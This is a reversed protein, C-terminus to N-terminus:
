STEAARVFELYVHQDASAAIKFSIGSARRILLIADAVFAHALADSEDLSSRVHVLSRCRGDFIM